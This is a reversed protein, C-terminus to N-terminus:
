HCLEVGRQPRASPPPPVTANPANWAGTAVSDVFGAIQTPSRKQWLGDRTGKRGAGKGGGRGRGNLQIHQLANSWSRCSRYLTSSRTRTSWGDAMMTLMQDEDYDEEAM